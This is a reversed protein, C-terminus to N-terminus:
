VFASSFRYILCSVEEPNSSTDSETDEEEEEDDDDDTQSDEDDSESEVVHNETQNQIKAVHDDQNQIKVMSAAPSNSTAFQCSPLDFHSYDDQQYSPPLPVKEFDTRKSTTPLTSASRKTLASSTAEVTSTPVRQVQVEYRSLEENTNREIENVTQFRPRHREQMSVRDQEEEEQYHHETGPSLAMISEGESEIASQLLKSTQPSLMASPAPSANTSFSSGADENVMSMDMAKDQMPQQADITLLSLNSHSPPPPHGQSIYGSAYYQSSGPPPAGPTASPHPPPPPPFLPFPMAQMPPPPLLQQLHTHHRSSSTAASSGPYSEDIPPPAQSDSNDMSPGPAGPHAAPPPM